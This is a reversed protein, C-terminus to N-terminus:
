LLVFFYIFFKYHQFKIHNFILISLHQVSQITESKGEFTAELLDPPSYEQTGEEKGLEDNDQYIYGIDTFCLWLWLRMAYYKDILICWLDLLINKRGMKQYVPSPKTNFSKGCTKYM